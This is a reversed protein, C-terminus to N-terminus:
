VKPPRKMLEPYHTKLNENAMSFKVLMASGASFQFANSAFLYSSFQAVCGLHDQCHEEHEDHCIEHQGSESLSHSLTFNCSVEHSDQDFDFSLALQMPSTAIVLVMLGYIFQKLFHTM